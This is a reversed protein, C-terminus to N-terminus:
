SWVHLKWISQWLVHKEYLLLVLIRWSFFGPSGQLQDHRYIYILPQPVANGVFQMLAWRLSLDARAHARDSWLRRQGSLFPKSGQSGVIGQSFQNSQACACESWLRWSACMCDQQFHQPGSEYINRRIWRDYNMRNFPCSLDPDAQTSACASRPRRQECVGLFVEILSKNYRCHHILSCWM